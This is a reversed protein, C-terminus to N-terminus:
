LFFNKGKSVNGYERLLSIQNCDVGLAAFFDNISGKKLLNELEVASGYMDVNIDADASEAIIVDDDDEMNYPTDGLCIHAFIPVGSIFPPGWLLM